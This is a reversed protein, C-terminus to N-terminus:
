EEEEGIHICPLLFFLHALIKKQPLLPFIGRKRRGGVRKQGRGGSFFCDLIEQGDYVCVKHTWEKRSKKVSEERKM